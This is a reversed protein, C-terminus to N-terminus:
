PPAVPRRFNLVVNKVSEHLILACKNSIYQMLFRAMPTNKPARRLRNQIKSYTVEPGNAPGNLTSKVSTWFTVCLNKAMQIKFKLGLVLIFTYFYIRWFVIEKQKPRDTESKHGISYNEVNSPHPIFCTNAGYLTLSLPESDISSKYLVCQLM